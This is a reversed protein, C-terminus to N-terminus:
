ILLKSNMQMLTDNVLRSTAAANNAIYTGLARARQKCYDRDGGGHQQSRQDQCLTSLFM